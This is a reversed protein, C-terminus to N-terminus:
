DFVDFVFCFFVAEDAASALDVISQAKAAPIKLFSSKAFEIIDVNAPASSGWHSGDNTGKCVNGLKKAARVNNDVLVQLCAKVPKHLTASIWFQARVWFKSTLHDRFDCFMPDVMEKLAAIDQEAAFLQATCQRTLPELAECDPLTDTASHCPLSDVAGVVVGISKMAKAWAVQDTGHACLTWFGSLETFQKRCDSTSLFEDTKIMFWTIKPLLEVQVKETMTRATDSDHIAAKQSAMVQVLEMVADVTVVKDMAFIAAEVKSHATRSANKHALDVIQQQLVENDIDMVSKQLAQVLPVLSLDTSSNADSMAQVCSAAIKGANVVLHDCAGPRLGLKWEHAKESWTTFVNVCASTM